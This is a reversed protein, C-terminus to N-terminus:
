TGKRKKNNSLASEWLIIDFIRLPTLVLGKKSLSKQITELDSRNPIVDKRVAKTLEVMAEPMKYVAPKISSVPMRKGGITVANQIEGIFKDIIPQYYNTIIRSDLIPILSPRKKHLIKSVRAFSFDNLSLFIEFLKCLNQWPINEDFISINAPVFELENEIAQKESWLKQYSNLPPNIQELFTLSALCIIDFKNDQPVELKDYLENSDEQYYKTALLEVNKIQKGCSLTIKM